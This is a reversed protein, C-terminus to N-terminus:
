SDELLIWGETKWDLELIHVIGGATGERNGREKRGDRGVWYGGGGRGVWTEVSFQM